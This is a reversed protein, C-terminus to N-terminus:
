TTTKTLVATRGPLFTLRHSAKLLFFVSM